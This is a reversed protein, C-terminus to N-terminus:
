VAVNNAKSFSVFEKIIDDVNVLVEGRIMVPRIDYRQLPNSLKGGLQKLVFFECDAISKAMTLHAEDVEQSGGSGCGCGGGGNGSGCGCGGGGHGHEKEENGHNSGCGCGGHSEEADMPTTQIHHEAGSKPNKRYETHVVKEDEFTIVMFFEAHGTHEAITKKDTTPIAIKM